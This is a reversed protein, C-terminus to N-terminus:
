GADWGSALGQEVLMCGAALDQQAVAMPLSAHVGADHFAAAAAAAAAAAGAVAGNAAVVAAVPGAVAFVALIGGMWSGAMQSAAMRPREAALDKSVADAPVGTVAVGPRQEWRSCLSKSCQGAAAAAAAAAHAETLSWAHSAV